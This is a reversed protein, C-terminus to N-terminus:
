ASAVGALLDLGQFGGLGLGDAFCLALVHDEAWTLADALRGFPDLVQGSLVPLEEFPEFFALCQSDEAFGWVPFAEAVWDWRAASWSSLGDQLWGLGHDPRGRLDEFEGAAWVSRSFGDVSM